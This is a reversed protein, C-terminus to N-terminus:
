PSLTAPRHALFLRIGHMKAEGPDRASAVHPTGSMAEDPEVGGGLGGADGDFAATNTRRNALM